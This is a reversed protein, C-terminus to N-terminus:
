GTPVEVPYGAAKWSPFGERFYYVKSFGWAVAKTCAKSSLLCRPGMCYIVVERNKAVVASLSAESFERKFYLHVAGPIHGNNWSEDDRVDVFTVGRDLLSKVAVADVTTTGPVKPPSVAKGHGVEPVGVLSLGDRLRNRDTSERFPLLDIDKLTYPGALLVDVGVQVKPDTLRHQREQRLANAKEIALKADQVRQLQGYAAALVILSRDDDPNSQTARTLTEAADKFREMGFQALGLWYLYEHPYRPDLRMAQRIQEAADVPRGAYILATAMAAYAVPDNPDLAIARRAEAIAAEHDGQRSLRGSAVQYALPTPNKMAEQLNLHERRRSEDTNIGLASSWTTTGTSRDKDVVSWYAAALAAYARGYISDLEIAKEFYPIAKAFDDPSNRRYHAWGRLFADYAEPNDTEPQVREAQEGASLNVALAKVIKKTVSDQLAFVSALAGDYREAWLHGGTTADILQANIRVQDGVRRVSGELVYRVGLEEAVQQVTIPKGKYSFTSNRAIVFLGSLKSLDTILDETIGDVFYEQEPDGSMNTFPLVAISPKDPLPFAMREISAPAERPQWPQWWVILGAGVVLVVSAAIAVIVHHMPQRVKPPVSPAPLVTDPKLRVSYARVPKAINKIAQEGIFEFDLPLKNDVAAHVSESTCIGGPTALSELRAAINVGDGYIEKRDVIVEGLNVGIRFELKRAEPLDKNREALDHQVAVACILTDSVTAFDALVADGAFHLVKGNHKEVATTIADLYASLRRHTGEEDEGTLRSYGAVDAYLIATLKRPLREEM